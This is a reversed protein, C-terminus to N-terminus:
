LVTFTHVHIKFLKESIIYPTITIILISVMSFREVRCVMCTQTANDPQWKERPPPEAPMVFKNIKNTKVVSGISPSQSLPHRNFGLLEYFFYNYLPEHIYGTSLFSTKIKM